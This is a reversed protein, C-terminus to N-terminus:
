MLELDDLVRDIGAQACAEDTLGSPAGSVGVAGLLSGGATIPLGGPSMVLGSVRGIPTNARDGLASTPANFNAATFAKQRSIELTVPAAITDRLAVQVTGDRDVVTVGIQIGQGRCAEVAAGAVNLATEMALRKVGVAPATQAVAGSVAVALMAGALMRMSYM